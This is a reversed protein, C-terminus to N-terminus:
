ARGGPRAAPGADHHRKRWSRRVVAIIRGALVTATMILGVGLLELYVVTASPRAYDNYLQVVSAVSTGALVALIAETIRRLRQQRRESERQHLVSLRDYLADAEAIQAELDSELLHLRAAHALRDLFERHVLTRCITPSHILALLSGAEVMLKRLQVHGRDLQRFRREHAAFSSGADAQELLQTLQDLADADQTIPEAIEATWVELLAPVTAVFEAMEEYGLILFNPSSLLALLTTNPTRVVLDDAFGLGKVLNEVDPQPYRVWEELASAWQHIHGFLLSSGTMTFLDSDTAPRRRGSPEVVSASRLSLVVHCGSRLHVTADDGLLDGLGGAVERAFEIFRSWSSCNGNGYGIDEKGMLPSGRRIAQNVEHLSADRLESEIRLHHNGLESLRLESRFPGIPEGATTVVHLDPLRLSVGRYKRGHPDTSHWVDSLNLATLSVPVVRGLPPPPHTEEIVERARSIVAAAAATQGDKVRVTFPYVYVLKAKDLHLRPREATEALAALTLRHTRLESEYVDGSIAEHREAEAMNDIVRGLAQTAAGQAAGRDGDAADLFSCVVEAMEAVTSFYVQDTTASANLFARVHELPSDPMPSSTADRVGRASEVVRRAHEGMAVPCSCNLGNEVAMAADISGAHRVTLRILEAELRDRQAVREQTRVTAQAFAELLARILDWEGSLEWIDLCQLYIYLALLLGGGSKRTAQEFASELAETAKTPSIGRRPDLVLDALRDVTRLEVGYVSRLTQWLTNSKRERFEKVIQPWAVSSM